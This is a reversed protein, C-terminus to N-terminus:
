APKRSRIEQAFRGWNLSANSLLTDARFFRAALLVLLYTTVALGIISAAIQWAPVAVVSLRAMMATPASLPFLSLVTVLAGNPDAVFAQNLYFPVLLPLIVIFNFQAGERATPALAGIAGLLSAYLLYGLLFYVVALLIFSARLAQGLALSVLVLGSGAVALGGGLWIAMQALAVTGLGLVKGLMLDRPRLSLLLVEATRNEKEKAVSQLMYGGSMTIVFFLIFMVAFPLAFGMVSTSDTKVQPALAATEMRPTPDLLLRALEDSGALNAALVYQLTYDQSDAAIPAVQGQVVVVQGTQRYDAAILYYRSLEGATLAAKAAAEDAFARLQGAPLDQPLARIIGAADVYGAPQMGGAGTLAQAQDVMDQAFLSPFLSFAMIILPFILTMFWFSKKGITTLIEHKAVLWINHM